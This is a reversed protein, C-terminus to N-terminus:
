CLSVSGNAQIDPFSFLCICILSIEILTYVLFIHYWAYSTHSLSLSAAQPVPIKKEKTRKTKFKVQNLQFYSLMWIDEASYNQKRAMTIFQTWISHVRTHPVYNNWLMSISNFVFVRKKLGHRESWSTHVQVTRMPLNNLEVVNSNFVLLPVFNCAVRIFFVLM